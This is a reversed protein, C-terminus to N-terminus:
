GAIPTPSEELRESDGGLSCGVVKKHEVYPLECEEFFETLYSSSRYVFFSASSESNGCIMDAIEITKKKLKM